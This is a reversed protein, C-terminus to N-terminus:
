KVMRHVGVVKGGIRFDTTELDVVLPEYADNAPVLEVTRGRRVIRKVTAEEEVIAVGIEGNEVRAQERVIVYDGDWIGADIMSEGSVRLAYLGGSGNFLSEFSLYGELNELATIPAGAAVQGVIPIGAEGSDSEELLEPALEIGRSVGAQRRICGKRELADLHNRVANTSRLGFAEGIERMTPVHHEDRVRHLIYDLVDRQKETLRDTLAM